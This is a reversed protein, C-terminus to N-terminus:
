AVTVRFFVPSDSKVTKTEIVLGDETEEFYPKEDFGLVDVDKIIGFFKSDACRAKRGLTRILLKGDEPYRMCAAYLKGHNTVFRFDEATYVKDKTDTFHGAEQKTPGEEAYRWPRSGYIAEGNVSLWSGIAELVRTDEESITGDAKPGVNLLMTGNKSVVDVLDCLISWPKKFDNGETYCWSNKAIATDTQWPFPQVESFQGREIDVVATGFMFSDHKYAIMVEEGWEAARNYYYAAIKQLYPKAVAQQIWWDFYLEHIHYRDILECTRIMWDNLFEESPEPKFFLDEFSEPQEPISPWYIHGREFEGTIDSEFSRGCGMFWWHEIRHTSAGNIMGQKKIEETLEGLVDRKPGMNAANWRSLDSKYMQFGDHHEAVPVVYRAGARRFLDIWKKADFKDATFMPIFDKYGFEKHPGYTKVHHEFERSGELYMTRSYWETSFAPVSYVGWHIFIGLKADRFWAPTEHRSLSEWSADYPGNQIVEDIKKLWEKQDYQM